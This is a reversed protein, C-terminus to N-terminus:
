SKNVLDLNWAGLFNRIILNILLMVELNDMTLTDLHNVEDSLIKSM